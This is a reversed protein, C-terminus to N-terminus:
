FQCHGPNPADIRRGAQSGGDKFLSQLEISLDTINSNWKRLLRVDLFDRRRRSTRRRSSAPVINSRVWYPEAASEPAFSKIAL